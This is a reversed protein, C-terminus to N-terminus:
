SGDRKKIADIAKTPLSSYLGSVKKPMAVMYEVIINLLEFLQGVVVPDDTDIQGPHVAHNGTVRVLDLSQQVIIPLGKKVLNAIDDDIKIGKEGLEKCLVQVALRLLAAAGRPSKAHISAAELYLEQVPQPMESNPVPATGSDPYYLKESLWLTNRGCHTCTGVRIVNNPHEVPNYHVNGWGISWWKQQTIAGCHPCTFKGEFPNPAIYKMQFKCHSKGHSCRRRTSPPRPRRNQRCCIGFRWLVPASWFAERVRARCFVRWRRPSRHGEM